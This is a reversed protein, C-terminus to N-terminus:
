LAMQLHIAINKGFRSKIMAFISIPLYTSTCVTDAEICGWDQISGWTIHFTLNKPKKEFLVRSKPEFTLKKLSIKFQFGGFFGNQFISGRAQKSTSVTILQLISNM